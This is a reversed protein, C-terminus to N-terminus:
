PLPFTLTRLVAGCDGDAVVYVRLVAGEAGPAEFALVRVARTGVTARATLRLAGASTDTARIEAECTPASTADAQTTAPAAEGGAAATPALLAETVRDRLEDDAVTGLDGADVPGPARFATTSDEAAAAGEDADDAEKALERTAVQDHDNDRGLLPFLGLALVVAAAAGLLWGPPRRRRHELSVVRAALAAAIAAERPEDDVPAVPGGILNAARRLEDIRASCAACGEVHLAEELTAEGDLLASLADDGPHDPHDPSM